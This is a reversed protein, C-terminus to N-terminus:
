TDSSSPSLQYPTQEKCFVDARLATFSGPPVTKFAFFHLVMERGNILQGALVSRDEPLGPFFM